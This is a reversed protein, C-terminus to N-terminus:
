GRAHEFRGERLFTCVHTALQPFFLMCTHCVPLTIEDTAGALQSEAAGVIGDNPTDLTAFLRGLGLSLSGRIVGVERGIPARLPTGQALLQVMSIGLIRRGFRSASLVRAVRSGGFPSGLTVVRGSASPPATQLMLMIVVGGLSHGVLHCVPAEITGLFRALAAANDGLGSGVTAYSFTYTVYGRRHLRWALLAMSWGSLWLGHVLVVAQQSM